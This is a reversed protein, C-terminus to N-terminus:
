YGLKVDIAGSAGGALAALAYGFRVGTNDKCIVSTAHGVKYYLIDGVAIANNGAGDTAVATLTYVGQCDVINSLDAAQATLAVAPIQGILCPDGSNVGGASPTLHLQRGLARKRNAAM